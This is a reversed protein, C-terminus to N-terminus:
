GDRLLLRAADKKTSRRVDLDLRYVQFPNSRRSKVWLFRPKESVPVGRLSLSQGARGQAEGLVRDGGDVVSMAFSVGEVGSARIDLVAGADVGALDLAWGDRDRAWGIYGRGEARPSLQPLRDLQRRHEGQRPGGTWLRTELNYTRSTTAAAGKKRFESVRLFVVQGGALPYDPFGEPQGRGGRDSRALLAGKADLLDLVTDLGKAQLRVELAGREAAAIRFVDRDSKGLRGAGKGPLSLRTSFTITDNPERETEHIPPGGRDVFVVTEEGNWVLSPLEADTKECGSALTLFVGLTWATAALGRPTV